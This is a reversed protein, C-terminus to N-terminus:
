EIDGADKIKKILNSKMEQTVSFKDDGIKFVLSNMEQAEKSVYKKTKQLPRWPLSFLREKLGRPVDFVEQQSPRTIIKFGNFYHM